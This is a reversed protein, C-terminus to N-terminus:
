LYEFIQDFWYNYRSYKEDLVIFLMDLQAFAKQAVEKKGSLTDEKHLQNMRFQLQREGKEIIEKRTM